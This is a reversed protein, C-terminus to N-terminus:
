SRTDPVNKASNYPNDLWGPRLSETPQQPEVLRCIHCYYSLEDPQCRRRLRCYEVMYPAPWPVDRVEPLLQCAKKLTRYVTSEDRGILKSVESISLESFLIFADVVTFGPLTLNCFLRARRIATIPPNFTLKWGPVFVLENSVVRILGKSALIHLASSATTRRCRNIKALIEGNIRACGREDLAAVISDFLTCIEG